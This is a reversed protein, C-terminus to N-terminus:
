PTIPDHNDENNKSPADYEIQTLIYPDSSLM